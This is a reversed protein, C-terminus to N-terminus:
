SNDIWLMGEVPNEPETPQIPISIKKHMAYVPDDTITLNASTVGKLGSGGTMTKQKKEPPVNKIRKWDIKNDESDPLDNIADVIDEGKLIFEKYEPLKIAELVMRVAENIDADKGDKPARLLSESITKQVQTNTDGVMKSVMEQIEAKSQKHNQESMKVIVNHTQSMKQLAQRVIGKTKLNLTDTDKKFKLLIEGVAATVQEIDDPTMIMDTRFFKLFKKLEPAVEQKKNKEAM